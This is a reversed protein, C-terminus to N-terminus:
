RIRFNKVYEYILRDRTAEILEYNILVFSFASVLSGWILSVIKTKYGKPYLFQFNHFLSANYLAILGETTTDVTLSTIGEPIEKDYVQLHNNGTTSPIFTISLVNFMMGEPAKYQYVSGNGIAVLLTSAEFKIDSLKGLSIM